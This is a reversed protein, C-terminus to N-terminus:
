AWNDDHPVFESPNQIYGNELDSNMQTELEIGRWFKFKRYLEEPSLQKPKHQETDVVVFHAGEQSSYLNYIVVLDKRQSEWDKGFIHFSRISKNTLAAEKIESISKSCIKRITKIEAAGVNKIPIIEIM